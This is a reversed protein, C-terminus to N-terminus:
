VQLQGTGDAGVRVDARVVVWAEGKPRLATIHVVEGAQGRVTAKLGRASSEVGSFRKSSVPVYKDLEGLLVITGPYLVTATYLQTTHTGFPWRMGGDLHVLPDDSGGDALRVCGTAVADTGATCDAARHWDRVAFKAGNPPVPYMDSAFVPVTGPRATCLDCTCPSVRRVTSSCYLVGTLLSTRGAAALFM